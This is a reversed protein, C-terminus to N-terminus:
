DGFNMRIASTTDSACVPDQGTSTIEVTVGPKPMFAQCGSPGNGSQLSLGAAALMPVLVQSAQSTGRRESAVECFSGDDALTAALDGAPSALFILGMETDHDATWGGEAFLAATLDADGAGRWCAVVASVHGGEAAPQDLKRGMISLVMDDAVAPAASLLLALLAATARM